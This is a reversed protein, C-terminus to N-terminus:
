TTLLCAARRSHAAPTLMFAALAEPNSITYRLCDVWAQVMRPGDPIHKTILGPAKTKAEM